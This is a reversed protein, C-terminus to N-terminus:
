FIRTLILIDLFKLYTYNILFSKVKEFSIIATGPASGSPLFHHTTHSLILPWPPVQLFPIRPSASRVGRAMGEGCIIDMIM